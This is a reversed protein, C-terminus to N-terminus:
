HSLRASWLEVELCDIQFEIHPKKCIAEVFFPHFEESPSGPAYATQNKDLRIWEGWLSGWLAERREAEQRKFDLERRRLAIEAAQSPSPNDLAIGLGFDRDIQAIATKFDLNFLLMVFDIVSGGQGCGFCHWGRGPEKYLKLSPTKDTGHFPCAINSAHNPQFGYMEAVEPMSLVSKIEYAADM